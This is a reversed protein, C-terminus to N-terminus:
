VGPNRLLAAVPHLKDGALSLNQLQARQSAVQERTALGTGGHWAAM